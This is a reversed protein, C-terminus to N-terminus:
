TGTMEDIAPGHVIPLRPGARGEADPNSAPRGHTLEATRSPGRARPLGPRGSRHLRGNFHAPWGGPDGDRGYEDGHERHGDPLRDHPCRPDREEAETDPSVALGYPSHGVPVTAIVHEGPADIVSVTHAGSNTVYLRRGDPSIAAGNPSDGVQVAAIVTNTETSIISVTDDMSNAVFVRHGSPSVVLGFPRRGVPITAIVTNAATDIVSVSGSTTGMHNAVYVRSGNPSIAVGVPNIGVPITAVVGGSGDIVTVNNSNGNGVYARSGDNSVAIGVAFGGVPATAFVTNTTTDLLSVVNNDRNIIWATQASAAGPIAPILIAALGAALLLSSRPRRTSGLVVM